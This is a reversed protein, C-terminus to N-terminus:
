LVTGEFLSVITEESSSVPKEDQKEPISDKVESKLKFVAKCGDGMFEQMITNIVVLNGKESVQEKHFKYGDSFQFIVDAGDVMIPSAESLFAALRPKSSKLKALISNWNHKVLPLSLTVDAKEKPTNLKEVKRDMKKEFASKEVVVEPKSVEKPDTELKNRMASFAAKGSVNSSSSHSVVPKSQSIVVNTSPNSINSNKIQAKVRNVEPAEVITKPEPVQHLLVTMDIFAIEMMLRPNTHWKMDNEAKALVNILSKINDLSLKAALDNLGKVIEDSYQISDTSGLKVFLLSRYFEILDKIIQPINMGDNILNGVVNLLENLSNDAVLETMNLLIEASSTGIIDIVDDAKIDEGTFSIVQDLLSIADRLGGDANKAILLAAKDELKVNEQEALNLIHAKIENVSIKTFDLRQCRSIITIPIKQPDTTALIFLTNQPPEELTKLLANFAAETLMHVEDIIYIKYKGEVPTYNVRDRIQRMEDIGRNSAADIEIIDMATGSTIAKCLDCKNCPTTSKGERCNLSKALIRATSTKGTGRPGSFIYAHSLRDNVIANSLVKIIHKQGVLDAFTQSRYKRYLTLYAM